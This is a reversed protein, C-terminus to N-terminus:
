IMKKRFLLSVLAITNKVKYKQLLNKRYSDITLHSLCLEKAIAKTTKGESLLAILQKERQTLTPLQKPAPTFVIRKVANSLVIEGVLAAEIGKVIDQVSESKLLFGTGGNELFQVIHNQEAHHSLGIVLTEPNTEKITKCLNLGNGDFSVVDLLVIDMQNKQMYALFETESTFPFVMYSKNKEELLARLGEIVIPHKDLLAIKLKKRSM